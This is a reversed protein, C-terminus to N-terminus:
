VCTCVCVCVCVFVRVCVCWCVGCVCWCVVGCVVCVCWCVGGCVGVCVLVHRGKVLDGQSLMTSSNYSNYSFCWLSVNCPINTHTDLECSGACLCSGLAQVEGIGM